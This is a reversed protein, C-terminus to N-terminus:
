RGVAGVSELNLGGHLLLNCPRDTREINRIHHTASLRRQRSVPAGLPLLADSAPQLAARLRVEGNSPLSVPHFLSCAASKPVRSLSTANFAALQARKIATNLTRAAGVVIARSIAAKLLDSAKPSATFFKAMFDCFTVADRSLVNTRGITIPHFLHSPIDYKHYKTIKAKSRARLHAQFDRSHNPGRALVSSVDAIVCVHQTTDLVSAAIDAIVEPGEPLLPNRLPYFRSVKIEM